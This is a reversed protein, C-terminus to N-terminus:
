FLTLHCHDVCSLWELFEYFSLIGNNDKDHTKFVADVEEPKGSFEEYMKRFENLDIGGSKDLDYRKFKEVAAIMFQYRSNDDISKFREGSAFWDKFEVFSIKGSADKDLLLAYIQEEQSTLGLDEDLLQRLEDTSLRRNNNADYKKFLSKLVVTPVDKNFYSKGAM